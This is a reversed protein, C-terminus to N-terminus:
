GPCLPLDTLNMSSTYCPLPINLVYTFLYNIFSFVYLSFCKQCSPMTEHSSIM